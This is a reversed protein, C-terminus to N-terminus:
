LDPIEESNNSGPTANSDIKTWSDIIWSKSFSDIKKIERWRISIENM